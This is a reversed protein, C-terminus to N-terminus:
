LSSWSVTLPRSVCMFSMCARPAPSPNKKPLAPRSSPPLPAFPMASLHARILGISDVAQFPAQGTLLHYLTAGLSYYDARFDVARNMRGSQEPALYALTGEILEPRRFGPDQGQLRTSIGFDILKVQGTAPNLLINAPNVDRHIIGAAHIEGLASVVERGITLSERLSFRRRLFLSKLSEAGWDESILVLTNHAQHLALVRGIGPRDALLTAIEYENKYKQIERPAPFEEKLRKLIVPTQDSLRIARCAISHASEYLEERLQYGSLDFM